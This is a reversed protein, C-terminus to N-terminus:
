LKRQAAPLYVLGLPFNIQNGSDSEDEFFLRARRVRLKSGGVRGMSSENLSITLKMTVDRRGKLLKWVQIYFEAETQVYRKQHYLHLFAKDAGELWNLLRDFLVILRQPPRIV